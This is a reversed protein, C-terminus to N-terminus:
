NSSQVTIHTAIQNGGDTRFEVTAMAGVAPKGDIKTDSNIVFVQTQPDSGSQVEISLSTDTAAVIKGSATSTATADPTPQTPSQQSNMSIAAPIPRSWAPAVLLGLSVVSLLVQKPFKM